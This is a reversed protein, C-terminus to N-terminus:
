KTKHHEIHQKLTNLYDQLVKPNIKPHEMSPITSPDELLLEYLEPYDIEIKYTLETIQQLLEQETKM